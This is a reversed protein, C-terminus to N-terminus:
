RGQAEKARRYNAVFTEANMPLSVKIGVSDFWPRIRRSRGWDEDDIAGDKNQDMEGFTKQAEQEVGDAVAATGPTVPTTPTGSSGARTSVKAYFAKMAGKPLLEVPTLFGDGNRDLKMFEAFKKRDWEYLAIQGDGNKDQTTYEAPLEPMFHGKRATRPQLFPNQEGTAAETAITLQQVANESADGRGSNEPVEAEDSRVPVRVPAPVAGNSDRGTDSPDPKDVPPEVPAPVALARAVGAAVYAEQSIPAAAPLGHAQLEQFDTPSM